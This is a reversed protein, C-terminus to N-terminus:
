EVSMAVTRRQVRGLKTTVRPSEETRRGPGLLEELYRREIAGDDLPEVLVVRWSQWEGRGDGNLISLVKATAAGLNELVEHEWLRVAAWGLELLRHTQRRDRRVNDILKQDWFV